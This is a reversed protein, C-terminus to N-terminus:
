DGAELLGELFRSDAAVKGEHKRVDLFRRKIVINNNRSVVSGAM